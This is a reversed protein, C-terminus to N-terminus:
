DTGWAMYWLTGTAAAPTTTNAHASAWCKVTIAKAASTTASVASVTGSADSALVACCGQVNFPTYIVETSTCVSQGMLFRVNGMVTCFSTTAAM